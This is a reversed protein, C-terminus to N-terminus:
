YGRGWGGHRGWGGWGGHRGGWGWGGHGHHWGRHGWGGCGPCGGAYPGYGGRDPYDVGPAPQPPPPPAYAPVCCISDTTCVLGTVRHGPKTVCKNIDNTCFGSRWKECVTTKPVCCVSGEACFGVLVHTTQECDATPRCTGGRTVCWDQNGGATPAQAAVTGLLFICAILSGWKM